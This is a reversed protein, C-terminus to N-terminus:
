KGGDDGPENRRRHAKASRAIDSFQDPHALAEAANERAHPNYFQYSGGHGIKLHCGGKGKCLSILNSEDLERSPDTHFPIIHHVQIGQLTGCAACRPHAAKYKKSLAPWESSREGPKKVAVVPAPANRAECRPAVDCACLLLAFLSLLLQRM